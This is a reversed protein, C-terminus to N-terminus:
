SVNAVNVRFLPSDGTGMRFRHADVEFHARGKIKSNDYIRMPRDLARGAM